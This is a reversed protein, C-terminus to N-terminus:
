KYKTNIIYKGFPITGIFLLLGYFNFTNHFIVKKFTRCAPLLIVFYFRKVRIASHLM